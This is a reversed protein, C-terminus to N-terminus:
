NLMWLVGNLYSAFVLWIFYPLLLISSLKFNNKTLLMTILTFVTILVICYFSVEILHFYFFLPTWAWNLLMQASYFGLATKAKPHHHHQWLNWGAIAIMTYLITWVIPFVIAPPTMSSKHLRQYWTDSNAQTITGLFYGITQFVLIWLLISMVKVKKLM